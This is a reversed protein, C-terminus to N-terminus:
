TYVLTRMGVLPKVIETQQTTCICVRGSGALDIRMASEDALSLDGVVGRKGASVSLRALVDALHGSWLAAQDADIESNNSNSIGLMNNLM